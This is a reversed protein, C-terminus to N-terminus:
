KRTPVKVQGVSTGDYIDINHLITKIYEDEQEKEKQVKHETITNKVAKVPNLEIKEQRVIKQGIRAGLVFSLINFGCLCLVELITM